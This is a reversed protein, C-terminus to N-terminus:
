LGGIITMQTQLRELQEPDLSLQVAVSASNMATHVIIPVIIRKTRVYLYAFVFGMSSYILIHEPEQHIIGFIISSLLAAFFFNMRKHLTGFIIKRFILEELVPAIIVPIILFLPFQRSIEMIIATNESGAEIGFLNVEINVAILQSLIALFFGIISWVIVGRLNAASKPLPKTLDRQMLKLTIFLAIIFSFINWYIIAEIETLPFFLFLIPAFALVSFQALIYTIIVWWYRRPL